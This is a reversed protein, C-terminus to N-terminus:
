DLFQDAFQLDEVVGFDGDGALQDIFGEGFAVVAGAIVKEEGVARGPDLAIGAETRHGARMSAELEVPDCHMGFRAPVSEAAAELVRGLVRHAAHAADIEY